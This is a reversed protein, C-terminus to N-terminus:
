GSALARATVPQVRRGTRPVEGHPLRGARRCKADARGTRHRPHQCAGGRLGAPQRGLHQRPCGAALGDLRHTGYVRAVPVGSSIGKAMCIVDPQVGWHEVAFWKGTRGFGTQVEDAILFIGHRDCIERLAQFFGDPPVVYGGEGQIPEVVIAAVEDPPTTTDFIEGFQRYVEHRAWQAEDM